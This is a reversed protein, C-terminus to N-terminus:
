TNKQLTSVITDLCVKMTSVQNLSVDIKDGLDSGKKTTIVIVGSAGQSGYLATASADKLVTVSAIDNPNIDNL